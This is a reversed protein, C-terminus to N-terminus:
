QSGSRNSTKLTENVRRYADPREAEWAFYTSQYTETFRAFARKVGSARMLDKFAIKMLRLHTLQATGVALIPNCYLTRQGAHSEEIPGESIRETSMRFRRLFQQVTM